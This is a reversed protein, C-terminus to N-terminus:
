FYITGRDAEAKSAVRVERELVVHSRLTFMVFGTEWLRSGDHVGSDTMGM